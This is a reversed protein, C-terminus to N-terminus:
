YPNSVNAVNLSTSIEGSTTQHDNTIAGDVIREGGKYVDGNGIM